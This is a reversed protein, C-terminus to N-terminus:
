ITGDPLKNLKVQGFQIKVQAPCDLANIDIGPILLISQLNADNITADAGQLASQVM